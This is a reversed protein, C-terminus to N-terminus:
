CCHGCGSLCRFDTKDYWDTQKKFINEYAKEVEVLSSYVSTGELKQLISKIQSM